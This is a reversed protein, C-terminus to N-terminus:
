PTGGALPLLFIALNALFGLTWLLSRLSPRDGVYALIYALRLVVFAGALVDVWGQPMHRFEALLVAAAFFPVAELGNQHAGRVRAALPDAYFAPDRPRANDFTAHRAWKLPALPLLALLVAGLLCWDALTV